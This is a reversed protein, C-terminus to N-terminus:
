RSMRQLASGPPFTRQHISPLDYVDEATLQAPPSYRGTSLPFKTPAGTLDSFSESCPFTRTPHAGKMSARM